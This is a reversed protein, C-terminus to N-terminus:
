NMARNQTANPLEYFMQKYQASFRGLHFFGWRMASESITEQSENVLLDQRVGNLRIKKMFAKPSVGFREKFGQYLTRESTGISTCLEKISLSNKLNKQIYDEAKKAVNIRDPLKYLNEPIRAGSLIIGLIAKEILEEEWECPTYRTSHLKWLWATLQEIRWGYDHPNMLLREQYRMNNFSYGTLENCQQELLDSNVAVTIVSSPLSTQLEFEENSNLSIIEHDALSRGRYYLSHEMSIPLTLITTGAPINGRTIIGTSRRSFSLQLQGTHVAVIRGQFKGKSFQKHEYPWFVSQEEMEEADSSNLNLCLDSPFLTNHVMKKTIKATKPYDSQCHM